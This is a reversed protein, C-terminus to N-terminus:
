KHSIVVQEISPPLPHIESRAFGADSFMRELESFTYADGSPTGGHEEMAALQKKVYESQHALIEQPDKAQILKQAHDFAAKLNAETFSLAKASVDKASSQLANATGGAQATAKHAAEIFSGFAKRAEEVSKATLDRIEAPIEYPIKTM